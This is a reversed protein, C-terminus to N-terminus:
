KKRKLLRVRTKGPVGYEIGPPNVVGADFVLDYVCLKLQRHGWQGVWIYEIRRQKSILKAPGYWQAPIQSFRQGVRLRSITITKM